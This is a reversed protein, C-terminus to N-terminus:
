RPWNMAPDPNPCRPLVQCVFGMVRMGPCRIGRADMVYDHTNERTEKTYNGRISFPGWGASASASIHEFMARNTEDTMSIGLELNRAVLMATPFAVMSGAPPNGGDSLQDSYPHVQPDFKWARSNFVGADLWTRRLPIKALEVKLSFDNTECHGYTDTRSRQTSGGFSFLGFSIGAGGGWSVSTSTDVKHVESHRFSFDMWSSGSETAWFKQPFYKTLLYNGGQFDDRVHSRYRERREAWLRASGRRQLGDIVAQAQEVSNKGSSAWAQYSREVAQKLVPGKRAWIEAALPDTDKRLLYDELASQYKEFSLTWRTEYERYRELLASEVRVAELRGNLPNQYKEERFLLEQAAKLQAEEDPSLAAIPLVPQDIVKWYEDSVSRGSPNWFRDMAPVHNAFEAFDAALANQDASMTVFGFDLAKPPLPVGPRTFTVYPKDRPVNTITDSASVVEYLKALLADMVQQDTAM